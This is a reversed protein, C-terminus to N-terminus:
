AAHAFTVIEAPRPLHGLWRGSSRGDLDAGNDAPDDDGLLWWMPVHTVDAWIRLVAFSPRTRGHEYNTITNRGCGLEAAMAATSFGAAERAKALRDALTWKPILTTSMPENQGM